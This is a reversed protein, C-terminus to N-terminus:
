TWKRTTIGSIGTGSALELVSKNKFVSSNLIIFRSLIISSDWLRLGEYHHPFQHADGINLQFKYANHLIISRDRIKVFIKSNKDVNKQQTNGM